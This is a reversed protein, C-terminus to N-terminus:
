SIMGVRRADKLYSPFENLLGMLMSQDDNAEKADFFGANDVLRGELDNLKRLYSFQHSGIGVFQVFIPLQSMKTLLESARDGDQPEGDTIFMAFTPYPATAKVELKSRRNFFGGGGGLDVNSFGAQDIIWQLAAVYSTGGWQPHQRGIFGKCNSLTIEGLDQVRNNFFSVPMTGDDDFVLGAAFTQDAVRQVEGSRYLPEASGSDDITAIVAAKDVRPDLGLQATVGMTQKVLSVLHPAEDRVKSLSVAM